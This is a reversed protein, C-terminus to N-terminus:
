RISARPPRIAAFLHRLACPAPSSRSTNSSLFFALHNFIFRRSHSRLVLPSSWNRAVSGAARSRLKLCCPLSDKVHIRSAPGFEPPRNIRYLADGIAHKEAFYEVHTLEDCPSKVSLRRTQRRSWPDSECCTPIDAPISAINETRQGATSTRWRPSCRYCSRTRIASRCRSYSRLRRAGCNAIRSGKGSRRLHLPPSARSQREAQIQEDQAGRQSYAAIKRQREFVATRCPHPRRRSIM